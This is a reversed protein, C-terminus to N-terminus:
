DSRVYFNLYSNMNIALKAMTEKQKAAGEFVIMADQFGEPDKTLLCYNVVSCIILMDNSSRAVRAGNIANIENILAYSDAEVLKAITQLYYKADIDKTLKATNEISSKILKFNVEVTSDSVLMFIPISLATLSIRITQSQYEHLFVKREEPLAVEAIKSFVLEFLEAFPNLMYKTLQDLFDPSGLDKITKKLLDAKDLLGEGAPLAELYGELLYKYTSIGCIALEENDTLKMNIISSCIPEFASAPSYRGMLRLISKAKEKLEKQEDGEIFIANLIPIQLNIHDVISEEMFVVMM